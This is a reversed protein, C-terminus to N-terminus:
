ISYLKLVYRLVFFLATFGMTTMCSIMGDRKLRKADEESMDKANNSAVAPPFTAWFLGFYMPGTAACFTGIIVCLIFYARIMDFGQSVKKM